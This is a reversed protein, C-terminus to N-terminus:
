QALRRLLEPHEHVFSELARQFDDGAASRSQEKLYEIFEKVAAQQESSLSAILDVLNQSEAM